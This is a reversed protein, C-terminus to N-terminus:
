YDLEQIEKDEPLGVTHNVNMEGIIPLKSENRHDNAIISHEITV